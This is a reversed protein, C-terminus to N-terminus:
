PSSAIVTPTSDRVDIALLSPRGYIPDDDDHVGIRASGTVYAIGDQTDLGSAGPVTLLRRLDVDTVDGGPLIDYVALTDEDWNELTCLREGDLSVHTGGTGYGGCEQIPVQNYPDSLDHIVLGCGGFMIGYAVLQDSIAW